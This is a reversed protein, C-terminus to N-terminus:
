QYVVRPLCRPLLYHLDFDDLLVSACTAGSSGAGGVGEVLYVHHLIQTLRCSGAGSPGDEEGWPGQVILYKEVGGGGDAEILPSLFSQTAQLEWRLM